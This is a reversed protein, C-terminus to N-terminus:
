WVGPGQRALNCVVIRDTVAVNGRELNSLCYEDTLEDGRGLNGGM